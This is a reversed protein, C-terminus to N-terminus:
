SQPSPNVPRPSTEFYPPVADALFAILRTQLESLKEALVLVDDASLNPQGALRALAPKGELGRMLLRFFNYPGPLRWLGHVAVRRRDNAEKVEAHIARNACIVAHIATTRARTRAYRHRFRPHMQGLFAM